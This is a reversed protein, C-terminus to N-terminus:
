LILRQDCYLNVLKELEPSFSSFIIASRKLVKKKLESLIKKNEKQLLFIEQEFSKNLQKILIKKQRNLEEIETLLLTLSIELNDYGLSILITSKRFTYELLKIRKKLLDSIPSLFFFTVVLSFLFFFFAEIPFTLDFDFLGSSNVLISSWTIM